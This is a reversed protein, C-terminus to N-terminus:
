GDCRCAPLHARTDIASAGGTGGLFPLHVAGTSQLLILTVASAIVVILVIVLIPRVREWGTAPRGSRRGRRRVGLATTVSSAGAAGRHHIAIATIREAVTAPDARPLLFRFTGSPTQIDILAGAEVHPLQDDAGDARARRATTGGRVDQDEQGHSETAVAERHPEVASVPRAVLHGDSRRPEAGDAGHHGASKVWWRPITGGMWPEVAHTSVSAWPLVRPPSGERGVLAIGDDGFRLAHVVVPYNGSSDLLVLGRLEFTEGEAVEVADATGAPEATGGPGAPEAPGEPRRASSEQTDGGETESRPSGPSGTSPGDGELVNTTM